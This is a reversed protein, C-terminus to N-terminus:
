IFLKRGHYRTPVLRTDQNKFFVKLLAWLLPMEFIPVGALAWNHCIIRGGNVSSCVALPKGYQFLRGASPANQLRTLKKRALLGTPWSRFPLSPVSHVRPRRAKGPMFAMKQPCIRCYIRSQNGWLWGASEKL